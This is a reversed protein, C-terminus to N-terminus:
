YKMAVNEPSNESPLSPDLGRPDFAFVGSEPSTSSSLTPPFTEGDSGIDSGCTDEV